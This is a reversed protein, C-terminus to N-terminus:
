EAEQQRASEENAAHLRHTMEAASAGQLTALLARAEPESCLIYDRNEPYRAARWRAILITMALRTRLLDFLVDVESDTLPCVASYSTVFACVDAIPDTGDRLLYACAVAVDAILPSRVMDGFDIIGALRGSEPEILVNGPNLDNHIIQWRLAALEPEVSAAFRALTSSCLTRLGADDVKDVLSALSAANKLDWLLAYDAAPDTFERLAVGIRALCDGLTSAARSSHGTEDIPAGDLWSLLRVCHQRGDSAVFKGLPRGDLTPLNRPVPLAPANQEIHLLAKAQLRTISPAEASNSIKLVASVGDVSTVRYNRDRESGLAALKGDLGYLDALIQRAEESTVAPPQTALVTFPDGNTMLRTKRGPILM